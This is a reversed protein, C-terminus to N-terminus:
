DASHPNPPLPRKRDRGVALHIASAVYILTGVISLALLTGVPFSRSLSELTGTELIDANTALQLYHAYARIFLVLM